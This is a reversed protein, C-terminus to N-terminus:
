LLLSTRDNEKWASSYKYSVINWILWTSIVIIQLQAIREGQGLSVLRKKEQLQM